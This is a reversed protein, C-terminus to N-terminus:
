SVEDIAEVDVMCRENTPDINVYDGKCSTKASKFLSIFNCWFESNM